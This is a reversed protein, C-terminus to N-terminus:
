LFHFLTSFQINIHTRKEGEETTISFCFEKEVGFQFSFISQKPMEQIIPTKYIRPCAKINIKIAKNAYGLHNHCKLAM